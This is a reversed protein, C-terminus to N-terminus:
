VPLPILPLLTSHSKDCDKHKWRTELLYTSSTSWCWCKSTDCLRRPCSINLEPQSAFLSSINSLHPSFAFMNGLIILWLKEAHTVAQPQCCRLNSLRVSHWPKLQKVSMHKFLCLQLRNLWSSNQLTFKLKDRRWLSIHEATRDQEIFIVAPINSHFSWTESNQPDAYISRASLIWYHDLPSRCWLQLTRDSM